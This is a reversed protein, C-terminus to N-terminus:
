EGPQKHLWTHTSPLNQMQQLYVPGSIAYNIHHAAAAAFAPLMAQFARLHMEQNSTREAALFAKMIEINRLYQMLLRTTCSLSSLINCLEHLNTDLVAIGTSDVLSNEPLFASDDETNDPKSWQTISVKKSTDSWYTFKPFHRYGIDVCPRVRYGIGIDSIFTM